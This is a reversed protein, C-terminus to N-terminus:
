AASANPQFPPNGGLFVLTKVAGQCLHAAHTTEVQCADRCSQEAHDRERVAQTMEDRLAAYQAKLDMVPVAPGSPPAVSKVADEAVQIM